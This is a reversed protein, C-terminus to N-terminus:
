EVKSCSQWAAFDVVAIMAGYTPRLSLLSSIAARLYICSALLSIQLRTSLSVIFCVVMPETFGDIHSQFLCGSLEFALSYVCDRMNVEIDYLLM